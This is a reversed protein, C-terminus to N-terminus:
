QLPGRLLSCQLGLLLSLLQSIPLLVEQALELLLPDQAKTVARIGKAHVIESLDVSVMVLRFGLVVIMELLKKFTTAPTSDLAVTTAWRVVMVMSALLNAVALTTESTSLGMILVVKTAHLMSTVARMGWKEKFTRVCLVLAEMLVKSQIALAAEMELPLKTPTIVTRTVQAAIGRLQPSLHTRALIIELAAQLSLASKTWISVLGTVKAVIKALVVKLILVTVVTAAAAPTRALITPLLHRTWDM